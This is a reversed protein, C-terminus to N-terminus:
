MPMIAFATSLPSQASSKSNIVPFSWASMVDLLMTVQPATLFDTTLVIKVVSVCLTLFAVTVTILFLQALVAFCVVYPHVSKM